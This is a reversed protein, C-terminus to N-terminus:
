AGAEYEPPLAWFRLAACDPAIVDMALTVLGGPSLAPVKSGTDGLYRNIIHSVLPQHSVLVIHQTEFNVDAHENVVADVAIVTSGPQLAPVAALVADKFAAAIIGATQSTRVLPSHLIRHPDPINRARCAARFHRCGIGVDSRGSPTLERLRDNAGEEAEGHRWVTVIM